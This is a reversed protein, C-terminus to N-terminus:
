AGVNFSGAAARSEAPAAGVSTGFPLTIEFRTGKGVDSSVSLQGNHRDVIM